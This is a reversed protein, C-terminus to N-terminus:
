IPQVVLVFVDRFVTMFKSGLTLKSQLCATLCAVLFDRDKNFYSTANVFDTLVETVDKANTCTHIAKLIFVKEKPKFHRWEQRIGINADESAAPINGRSNINNKKILDKWPNGTSPKSSGSMKFVLGTTWRLLILDQLKACSCWM